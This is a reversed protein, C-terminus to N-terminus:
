FIEAMMCRVSGGGYTEIVDLPIVLPVTFHSLLDRQASSLSDWARRSLVMHQQGDQQSRVELMNGAFQEMQELSIDLIAYGSTELSDVLTDRDTARTVAGLCVVALSQGLAMMVNTHYIAQGRADAAEFVVTKYQLQRAFQELLVPDTRPSLCAYIVGHTRDLIMSGTGELFTGGAMTTLDTLHGHEYRGLAWHIIDERREAQRNPAQMPYVFVQGGAHTSIWNNPFISDPTHPDPTDEFVTVQVGAARLMGVFTDFEALAQAQIQEPSLADPAHQFANSEATQANYGFRVPRIMLVHDTTQGARSAQDSVHHM